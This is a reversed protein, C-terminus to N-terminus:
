QVGLARSSEALLAEAERMLAPLDELPRESEQVGRLAERCERCRCYLDYHKRVAPDDALGLEMSADSLRNCLATIDKLTTM